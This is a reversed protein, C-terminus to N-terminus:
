FFCIKLCFFNELLPILCSRSSFMYCFSFIINLLKFADSLLIVVRTFSILAFWVRSRLSVYFSGFRDVSEIAVFICVSKFLALSRFLALGDVLETLLTYAKLIYPLLCALLLLSPLFTYLINLPISFVSLFILFLFKFLRDSPIINNNSNLLLLM